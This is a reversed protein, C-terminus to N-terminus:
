QLEMGVKRVRLILITIKLVHMRLTLVDTITSDKIINIFMNQTFMLLSHRIIPYDFLFEVEEKTKSVTCMLYMTEVISTQLPKNTIVKGSLSLCLLLLVYDLKGSELLLRLDSVSQGRICFTFTQCLLDLMRTAIISFLPAVEVSTIVLDWLRSQISKPRKEVKM